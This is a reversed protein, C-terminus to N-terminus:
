NKSPLRKKSHDGSRREGHHGTPNGKAVRKLFPEAPVLGAGAPQLVMRITM